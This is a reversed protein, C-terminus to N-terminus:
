GDDAWAVQVAVAAEEATGELRYEVSAGGTDMRGTVVYCHPGDKADVDDRIEVIWAPSVMLTQGAATEFAMFRM